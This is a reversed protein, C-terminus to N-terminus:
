DKIPAVKKKVMQLHSGTLSSIYIAFEYKLLRADDFYM